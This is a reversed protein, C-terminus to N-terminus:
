TITKFIFNFKIKLLNIKTETFTTSLLPGCGVGPLTVTKNYM